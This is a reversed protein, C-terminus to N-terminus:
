QIGLQGTLRFDRPDFGLSPNVLGLKGPGVGYAALSAPLAFSPIPLAPLSNNLSQDIVKQLLTQLMSTLVNNTSSDLSVDGTSFHM